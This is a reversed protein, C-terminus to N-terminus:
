KDKLSYGKGGFAVYNGKTPTTSLNAASPSTSPLPSKPSTGLRPPTSSKGDLRNGSGAFAKFKNKEEEDSDEEEEEDDDTKKSGPIAKSTSSGFTLGTSTSTTAPKPETVEKSDMAPAFDVSVDAEVISIAHSQGDPKIDLVRLTYKNKNYEIVFDESKTMASFSRLASELVAKPNSIELFSQTHPQIRLFNGLPLLASKIKLNDNDNLRLNNMMWKPMYCVGEEATFELVGCHSSRHSKPNSIEFMMPYQINLRTLKNLVSVPLLIKGGQELNPRGSLSINMVNFTQEFKGAGAAMPIGFNM